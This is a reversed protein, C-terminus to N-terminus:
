DIESPGVTVRIRGDPLVYITTPPRFEVRKSRFQATTTNEDTRVVLQGTTGYQFPLGLQVVSRNSGITYRFTLPKSSGNRAFELTMSVPRDALNVMTVSTLNPGDSEYERHRVSRTDDPGIRRTENETVYYHAATAVDIHRGNELPIGGKCQVAVVYSDETAIRIDSRCSIQEGTPNQEVHRNYVTTAEYVTTYNAVTDATLTEPADPLPRKAAKDSLSPLTTCGALVVLLGLFVAAKSPM